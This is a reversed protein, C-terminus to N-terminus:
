STQQSFFAFTDFGSERLLNMASRIDDRALFKNSLFRDLLIKLGSCQQLSIEEDRMNESLSQVALAIIRKWAETGFDRYTWLVAVSKRYDEIANALEIVDVGEGDHAIEMANVSLRMSAIARVIESRISPSLPKPQSKSGGVESASQTQTLNPSISRSFEPKADYAIPSDSPAVQRSEQVAILDGTSEGTLYLNM